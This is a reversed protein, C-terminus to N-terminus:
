LREPGDQPLNMNVEVLDLRLRRALDVNAELDPLEAMTPMGLILRSM